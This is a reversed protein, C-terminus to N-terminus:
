VRFEQCAGCTGSDRQNVVDSSGTDPHSRSHESRCLGRSFERSLGVRFFDGGGGNGKKPLEFFLMVLAMCGFWVVLYGLPRGATSATRLILLHSAGIRHPACAGPAPARQAKAKGRCAQRQMRNEGSRARERM